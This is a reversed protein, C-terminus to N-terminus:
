FNELLNKQTWELIYKKKGKNVSQGVESKKHQKANTEFYFIELLVQRFNDSNLKKLLVHHMLYWVTLEIFKM